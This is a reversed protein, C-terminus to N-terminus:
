PQSPNSPQRKQQIKTNCKIRPHGPKQCSSCAHRYKCADQFACSGKNNYDYCVNPTQQSRPSNLHNRQRQTPIQRTPHSPQFPQNYAPQFVFMFTNWHIECWPLSPQSAKLRRFKEDYVKWVQGGYQKQIDLIRVMYTYMGPAQDPHRDTYLAAYTGFLRLWDYIHIPGPTKQQGLSVTSNKSNISLLMPKDEAHSMATLDVYQGSWVKAKVKPDLTAGLILMSSQPHEGQTNEQDQDLLQNLAGELISQHNHEDSVVPPPDIDVRMSSQAAATPTFTAAPKSNSQPNLPNLSKGVPKSQQIQNIQAQLSQIQQQAAQLQATWRENVPQSPTPPSDMPAAATPADPPTASRSEAAQKTTKPAAQPLARTGDDESSSDELRAPLRTTRTSRRVTRRPPAPRKKSKIRPM